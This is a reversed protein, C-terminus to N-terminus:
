KLAKRNPDIKKWERVTKSAVDTGTLDLNLLGSPTMLHKRFGEDTIKTNKLRLSELKPLKSVVILSADTIGTDSLDLERLQKIGALYQLTEDTVDANAMQLVIVDSRHALISYDHRDWGTLTIHSEGDVITELPGLGLVRSLISNLLIPTTALTAALALAGLARKASGWSTRGLRARISAMLLWPIAVCGIMLGLAISGAGLQEFNPMADFVEFM